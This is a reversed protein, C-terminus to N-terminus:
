ETTPQLRREEGVGDSVESSDCHNSDNDSHGGADQPQGTTIVRHFCGRVETEGEVQGIEEEEQPDYEGLVECCSRWIEVHVRVVDQKSHTPQCEEAAGVEEESIGHEIGLNPIGDKAAFIGDGLVPCSTVGGAVSWGVGSWLQLFRHAATLGCQLLKLSVMSSSALCRHHVVQVIHTIIQAWSSVCVWVLEVVMHM